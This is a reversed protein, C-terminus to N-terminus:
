GLYCRSNEVDLMQRHDPVSADSRYIVDRIDTRRFDSTALAKSLPLNQFQGAARQWASSSSPCQPSRGDDLCRSALRRPMFDIGIEQALERDGSGILDPRHIQRINRHRSAEDIEAGDDVPEAALNQRPSQRDGHFRNQMSATSSASARCLLGSMKLVSWPDCNVEISKVVTNFFVPIAMEISPFPAHRSM